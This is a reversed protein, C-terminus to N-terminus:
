EDGELVPVVDCECNPHLPPGNVAAYDLVMTQGGARLTDGKDFFNDDLGITDNAQEGVEKCFECADASVLWRKGVVLGTDKWADINGTVYARASETRAIRDASVRSMEDIRERLVRSLEQPSGGEDIHATLASRLEDRVTGTVTRALKPVYNAVFRRAAENDIGFAGLNAGPIQTAGNTYGGGFARVLPGILERSFLEAAKKPDFMLESGEASATLQEFFQRAADAIAQEYIGTAVLSAKKHKCKCAIEGKGAVVMMRHYVVNPKACKALPEPKKEEGGGDGFMGGFPNAQVGVMDLPVGNFRLSDGDEVPDLKRIARAENITIIAAAVDARSQEDLTKQDEANPNDYAFWYRGPEMGFTPLLNETLRECLSSMRPAITQSLYQARAEFERGGGGLSSDSMEMLALPVGFANLITKKMRDIGEGYQMEKPSWQLPTVVLNDGTTVIPNGAKRPGQHRRQLMAHTQKVQDETSGKPLEVAFDPRASNNWFSQEYVIASAYIDAEVTSGNLCGVGMWPNQPSPIHKFQVVHQADISEREAYNRGYRYGVIGTEDITPVTWQPYLTLLNKPPATKGADHQWYANGCIELFYHTLRRFEIGTDSYNPNSLLAMVPSDEVEIIDDAKDAYAAAKGKVGRRLWLRDASKVKRGKGSNTYLRIPVSACYTSNMAACIHVYGTARALLEAQSANYTYVRQAKDDPTVTALFYGREESDLPPRKILGKFRAMLEAIGM